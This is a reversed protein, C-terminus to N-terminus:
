ASDARRQAERDLRHADAEYREALTRLIRATREWRAELQAADRRLGAALEAEQSGGAYPDRVTTGRQNFRGARIGEELPKSRITEILNRIPEPPWIGDVGSPSRSLYAGVESDGSDTRDVATLQQRVQEVWATLKAADIQGQEDTGPLHRADELVQWAHSALEPRAEPDDGGDNRPHAHRVLEVFLAPDTALATELAKAPRIDELWMVYTFELRALRAPDIGRSALADLLQGVEWSAHIAADVQESAAARELVQATLEVDLTTEDGVSTVLVDVAAWPRDHQLFGRVVRSLLGSDLNLPRVARWYKDEVENGLESVLGLTEEDLALELLLATQADHNLSGAHVQTKVWDIGRERCRRAAWGAAMVSVAGEKGLQPLLLADAGDFDRAAAAWGVLRPLSSAEALPRLGAVGSRDLLESMAQERLEAVARQQADFDDRPVGPASVQHDFLRAFHEPKSEDSFREAVSMLTKAESDELSWDADPFRLHREGEKILAEWLALRLEGTTQALPLNGLLDLLMTRDPPPLAYIHPVLAVWRGYDQDADEAVRNALEHITEVLEDLPTRNWELGWDRFRPRSSHTGVAHNKPLLALQLQWAVDPWRGRLADLAELRRTLDADTNPFWPLFTARLVSAPRNSWRGGPDHSALEGLLLVARVLYSPSWAIREFAWLLGTHPPHDFITDQGTQFLSLVPSPELDIGDRVADLFVDPAAEALAPLVDQLSEWSARDEEDNAARLVDAVLRTAFQGPVVGSSLAEDGRGGLLAAGQAIGDRIASSYRPRTENRVEVLIRESADMGSRPDIECLVDRAQRTWRTLLEEDLLEGVLAFCDDASVLRWAGDSRTWPADDSTSLALLREEVQSRTRGAVNQIVDDDGKTGAWGGLLLVAALMPSDGGTAWSPRAGAKTAAIARLLASFSRRALVALEDAQDFPVGAAELAERAPTRAPRPLTVVGEREYDGRGLALLVHNGHAVADGTEVNDIAVVLQMVRDSLALREFTTADRVWLPQDPARDADVGGLDLAAAIFAVAEERSGGRVPIVRPSESLSSRLTEAEDARGALLLAPPLTPRTRAALMEFMRSLTRVSMPQFGLRESLWVHVDPVAELWAHLREADLVAVDRWKGDAKRERAWDRGGPWRRPTVFVFVTQDPDAGRPDKTRSDYDKQAKRKPDQNTGMEWVSFGDPIWPTGAGGNIVGDFGSAAIGEEAPVDLGKVGASATLLRRVLHPLLGRMGLRDALHDLTNADVLEPNM